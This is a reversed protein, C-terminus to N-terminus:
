NRIQEVSSISISGGGNDTLEFLMSCIYSKRHLCHSHHGQPANHQTDEAVPCRQPGKGYSEVIKVQVTSRRLKLFPSETSVTTVILEQLPKPKLFM